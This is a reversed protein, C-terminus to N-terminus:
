EKIINIRGGNFYAVYVEVGNKYIREIQRFEEITGVCENRYELDGERYSEPGRHVCNGSPGISLAKRLFSEM